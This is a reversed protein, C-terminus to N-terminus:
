MTTGLCLCAVLLCFTLLFAIQSFSLSYLFLWPVVPLNLPTFIILVCKQFYVLSVNNQVILAYLSFQFLFIRGTDEAPQTEHSKLSMSTSKRLCIAAFAEESTCGGEVSVERSREERPNGKPGVSM